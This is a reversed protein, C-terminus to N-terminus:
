GELEIVNLGKDIIAGVDVKSPCAFTALAFDERDCELIGLRESEEVDNSVVAKILFYTLIDLTNYRDYVDNIVIARHGGHEDTDLSVDNQSGKFASVFTNSFTFKNFGPMLWGILERNGGEPILTILSDYHGLHGSEGIDTGSLVSGSIWRNIGVVDKILHNAPVGLITKFYRPDKVGEGATAVIREYPYTGAMLFQGIRVVDQAELYWVVDGKQIPDIYHILTSVNGTPHPGEFKQIVVNKAELLTPSKSKTSFCLHTDGDTLHRVADLGTQFEDKYRDLVFDMDPALPDTNLARIFISKPSQNTHAIKNFPRQRITNWLGGKLLLDKVTDRDLKDVPIPKQVISEKDQRGDTEIVIALLVRREGRKV